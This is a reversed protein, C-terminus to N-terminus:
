DKQLFTYERTSEGFKVTDGGKLPLAKHAEIASGNLKTGNTSGLDTIHPVVAGNHSKFTITAHHKSCSPHDVALKSERDRGVTFV